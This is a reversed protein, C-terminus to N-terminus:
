FGRPMHDLVLLIVVAVCAAGMWAISAYDKERRRCPNPLVSLLMEMFLVRACRIAGAETSNFGTKCSIPSLARDAM